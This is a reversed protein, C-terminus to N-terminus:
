APPNGRTSATSIPSKSDGYQVIGRRFGIKRMIRSREVDYVLWALVQTRRNENYARTASGIAPDVGLKQWERISVYDSCAPYVFRQGGGEDTAARVYARYGVRVLVEDRVLAALAPGDHPIAPRHPAARAFETRPFANGPPRSALFATVAQRTM